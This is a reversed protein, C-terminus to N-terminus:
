LLSFYAGNYWEPATLMMYGQHVTTGGKWTPSGSGKPMVRGIQAASILRYKRAKREEPTYELEIHKRYEYVTCSCIAIIDERTLDTYEFLISIKDTYNV